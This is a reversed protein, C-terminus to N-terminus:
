ENGKRLYPCMGRQPDYLWCHVKDKVDECDDDQDMCLRHLEVVGRMVPEEVTLQQFETM